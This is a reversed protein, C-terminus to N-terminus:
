DHFVLQLSAGDPQLAVPVQSRSYPTEHPQGESRVRSIWGQRPGYAPDYRISEAPLERGQHDQVLPARRKLHSQAGFVNAQKDSVLFPPTLVLNM